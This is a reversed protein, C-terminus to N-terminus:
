AGPTEAVLAAVADALEPGRDEQVFHGAGPRRRPDPRRARCTRRCCRPGAGRGPTATPSRPSSLARSPPWRTWPAATSGARMRQLPHAGDPTTAPATRRLLDRRPVTRRLGGPRRRPRGVRHGGARLPEAPAAHAGPHPAPLRAAGAAADRDGGRHRSLGLVPPRGALPRGHAPGHQVGRHPARSGPPATLLGLGLRGAGTRFSSRSAPSDSRADAFQTIWDVHALVSHAARALPKDSRGFGILDPAVARLGRSVLGAVVTRYLYGWTPQGHLLLVTEASPAPGGRRLADARGIPLTRM